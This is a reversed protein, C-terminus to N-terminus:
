ILLEEYVAGAAMINHLVHHSHRGINLESQLKTDYDVTALEIAIVEGGAGSTWPRAGGGPWPLAWYAAVGLLQSRWLM